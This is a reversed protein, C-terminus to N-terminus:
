AIPNQAVAVSITRIVSRVPCASGLLSAHAEASDLLDEVLLRFGPFWIVCISAKRTVLPAKHLAFAIHVWMVPAPGDFTAVVCVEAILEEDGAYFGATGCWTRSHRIVVADMVNGEDDGYCDAEDREEDDDSVVVKPVLLPFVHPEDTKTM